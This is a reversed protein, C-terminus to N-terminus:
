STFPLFKKEIFNLLLRPFAYNRIASHPIQISEPPNPLEKFRLVYFSAHLKQHSLVHKWDASIEQLTYSSEAIYKQFEEQAAIGPFDSLATTELLPFQYLNHWIDKGSRQQILTHTDTLCVLYHFYRDRQATKKAKVPLQDIQQRALAKCSTQLPCIRCNPRAPKCQLAGFEMMGQNFDAPHKKDLVDNALQAFQKKGITSDIPTDIGFYRSLLRYVNGDVVAVPEDFAISAIAAATYPGIGKLKLLGEYSSPFHGAYEEIVQKATKHMNRGRSYYGLGQWLHLIDSEQAAAFDVVTPYAELFRQFYPLGQEIRTQQLIIESLWIVYPDKSKRWPLDRKNERYWQVVSESFMEEQYVAM